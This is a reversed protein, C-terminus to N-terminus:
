SGDEDLQALTREVEDLEEETADLLEIDVDTAPESDWANTVARLKVSGPSKVSGLSRLHRLCRQAFGFGIM